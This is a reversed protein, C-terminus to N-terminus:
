GAGRLEEVTLSCGRLQAGAARGLLRFGKGEMTGLDETLVHVASGLNALDFVALLGPEGAPQEALTEPHLARVRVWPPAVFLDPDGGALTETYCQSSLETMGYERVVAAAPVALREELRALLEARAVETTRGKFGGTEFVATGHPLRLRLDQRELAGLWDALAFATAFVLGPRRDRQRAAAWSRAKAVEVGRPGFATASEPSGWRALIHDAMFSLSSDPLATREPVLSLVPLRGGEPLEPLCARPFSSDIAQRYFEPYPQLHVSRGETGVTTGSSRFTEAPAEAALDLVRFAAAPVPPVDRWSSVTAPSAGRAACLRRYPAIRQHQFAFVALALEEFSAGSAGPDALFRAVRERLM